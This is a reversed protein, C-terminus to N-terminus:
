RGTLGVVASSQALSGRWGGAAAITALPRRRMGMRVRQQQLMGAAAAAEEVAVAQLPPWRACSCLGRADPPQRSLAGPQSPAASHCPPLSQWSTFSRRQRVPLAAARLCCDACGPEGPGRMQCKHM